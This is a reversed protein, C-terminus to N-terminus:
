GTREDSEDDRDDRRVALTFWSTSGQEDRETGWEEALADVLQLGRGFVKTPDDDALLM